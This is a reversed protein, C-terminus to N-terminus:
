APLVGLRKLAAIYPPRLGTDAVKTLPVKIARENDASLADRPLAELNATYLLVLCDQDSREPDDLMLWADVLKTETVEVGLEEHAERRIAEDLNEGEDVRGGPLGCHGDEYQVMWLMGDEQIVLKCSISDAGQM